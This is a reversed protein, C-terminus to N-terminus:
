EFSSRTRQYCTHAFTKKYFALYYVNPDYIFVHFATCRRDCSSSQPVSARFDAHVVFFHIFTAMHWCCQVSFFLCCAWGPGDVVTQQYKNQPIRERKKPNKKKIKVLTFSAHMCTYHTNACKSVYVSMYKLIMFHLVHM